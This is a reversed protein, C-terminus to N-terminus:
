ENKERLAKFARVKVREEEPGTWREDFEEIAGRDEISAFSFGKLQNPKVIFFIKVAPHKMGALRLKVLVEKYFRLKITPLHWRNVQVFVVKNEKTDFYVADYGGQSWDVPQLWSREVQINLMKAVGRRPYFGVVSPHTPSKKLKKKPDFQVVNGQPLAERFYQDTDDLIVPRQQVEALFLWELRYGDVLPSSPRTLLSTLKAVVEEGSAQAFISAVFSSVPFRCGALIKGPQMGYLRSLTEEKESRSCSRVLDVKDDVDLVSEEVVAKVLDTPYQFMFRCSGGAYYFKLRLLRLKQDQQSLTNEDNEGDGNVQSDLKTDLKPAVQDYFAEDKVADVYEDLTWSYMVFPKIRVANDSEVDRLGRSAMASCVVFRDNETIFRVRIRRLLADHEGYKKYGDLCVFLRESGQRPLEFASRDDALWHQKGKMSVCFDGLEDLHIWIVSWEEHDLSALFRLTCVSKGTGPPGVIWGRTNKAVVEDRLFEWLEHVQPRCYLMLDGGAYLGCNAVLEGPLTVYDADHISIRPVETPPEANDLRRRKPPLFVLVHIKDSSPLPLHNKELWQKVTQTPLIHEDGSVLTQIAAPIGGRALHGALETETELWRGSAGKALFLKLEPALAKESQRFLKHKVNEKLDLVTCSGDVEVEAIGGEGVRMCLLRLKEM